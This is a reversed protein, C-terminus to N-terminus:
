VQLSQILKVSEWLHGAGTASVKEAERPHENIPAEVTIEDDDDDSEVGTPVYNLGRFSGIGVSNVRESGLTSLESSLVFDQIENLLFSCCM